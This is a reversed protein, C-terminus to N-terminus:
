TTFMQDTISGAAIIRPMATGWFFYAGLLRAAITWSRRALSSLLLIFFFSFPFFSVTVIAVASFIMPFCKPIFLAVLHSIRAFSTSSPSGYKDDPGQARDKFLQCDNSATRERQLRSDHRRTMIYVRYRTTPRNFLFSDCNGSLLSVEHIHLKTSGITHLSFESHIISSSCFSPHLHSKHGLHDDLEIEKGDVRWFIRLWSPVPMRSPQTRQQRPLHTETCRLCRGRTERRRQIGCIRRV